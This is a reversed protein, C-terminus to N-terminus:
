ARMGVRPAQEPRRAAIMEKDWAQMLGVINPFLASMFPMGLKVSLEDIRPMIEERVAYITSYEEPFLAVKSSDYELWVRCRSEVRDMAEKLTMDEPLLKALNQMSESGANQIEAFHTKDLNFAEILEPRKNLGHQILIAHRFEHRAIEAFGYYPEGFCDGLDPSLDICPHDFYFRDYGGATTIESLPHRMQMFSRDSRNVIVRTGFDIASQLMHGPIFEAIQEAIDREKEPIRGHFPNALPKTLAVLTQHVRRQRGALIIDEVAVHEAENGLARLGEILNLAQEPDYHYAKMEGIYRAAWQPNAKKLIREVYLGNICLSDTDESLWKYRDELISRYASLLADQAECYLLDYREMMHLLLKQMVSSALVVIPVQHKIEVRWELFARLSEQNAELEELSQPLSIEINKQKQYLELYPQMEEKVLALILSAFAYGEVLFERMTEIHRQATAPINALEAHRQAQAKDLEAQYIAAADM